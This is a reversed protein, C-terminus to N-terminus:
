FALVLVAVFGALLSIRELWGSTVPGKEMVRGVSEEPTMRLMGRRWVRVMVWACEITLLTTLLSHMAVNRVQPLVLICLGVALLAVQVLKLAEVAFKSVANM